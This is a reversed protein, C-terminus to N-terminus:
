ERRKEEMDASSPTLLIEMEHDHDGAADSNDDMDAKWVDDAQNAVTQKKDRRENRMPSQRYLAGGILCLFLNAIGAPAAHQDWVVLNLMITLCKNIVGILSFSTASVKGRCWWSSYGIGTGAMSGLILLFMALLTIPQRQQQEGDDSSISWLHNQAFKQYEHNMAAFMLMPALGLINTYLVPGSQTKLDVSKLISKGYIMEFSITLCYCLPWFYAAWIGQSQFREDFSAYGYAGLVILFLAFWSQLSPYERGLFLADCFAVICPVLARFVIVTEVNSVSLSKMNCFVGLAFGIIYYLYPKVYKWELADVKIWGLYKATYIFILAAVIQFCIVLSPYPLNHLILKNILVLTGSCFSYAIISAIVERNHPTMMIFM